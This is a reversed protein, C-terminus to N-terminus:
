GRRCPPKMQSQTSWPRRARSAVALLPVGVAAVKAVLGVVAVEADVAQDPGVALHVGRQPLVLLHELRHQDLRQIHRGAAQPHGVAVMEDIKGAQIDGPPHHHIACHQFRPLRGGSVMPGPSDVSIRTGYVRGAACGPLSYQSSSDKVRLWSSSHALLRGRAPRTATQWGPRDEYLRFSYVAVARGAARCGACAPQTFRGCATEVASFVREMVPGVKERVKSVAM